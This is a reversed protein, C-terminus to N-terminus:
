KIAALESNGDANVLAKGTTGTATLNSTLYGWVDAAPTGSLPVYNENMAGDIWVYGSSAMALPYDIYYNGGNNKFVVSCVMPGDSVATGTATLFAWSGSAGLTQLSRIVTSSGPQAVSLYVDDTTFTATFRPMIPVTFTFSQGATASIIFDITVPIYQINTRPVLRQTYSAGSPVPFIADPVTGSTYRTITGTNYVTYTGQTTEQRRSYRPFPQRTDNTNGSDASTFAMNGGRIIIDRNNSDEIFGVNTSTCSSFISNSLSSGVFSLNKFTCSNVKLVAGLNIAYLAEEFTCSNIVTSNLSSLPIFGPGFNCNSVVGGTFSRNTVGQSTCYSMYLNSGLVQLADAFALNTLHCNIAQLAYVTGYEKTTTIYSSVGVWKMSSLAAGANNANSFNGTEYFQCHRWDGGPPSGTSGTLGSASIAPRRSTSTGMIKVNRTLTVVRAGAQHTNTIAPVTITKTGANYSTTTIYETRSQNSQNSTSATSDAEWLAIQDGGGSRLGLDDTLVLTTAGSSAISALTTNYTGTAYGDITTANANYLPDGCVKLKGQVNSYLIAAGNESSTDVKLTATYAAPIPDSPTGIDFIATSAAFTLCTATGSGGLQMFTNMSRSVYITGSLSISLCTNTGVSDDQDFTITDGAVITVTDAAAPKVGGTWSAGVSWNGGGTGNSTIAAM